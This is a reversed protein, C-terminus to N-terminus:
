LARDLHVPVGTPVATRGAADYTASTAPTGSLADIARRVHGLAQSALERNAATTDEIAEALSLFAKRHDAFVDNWPSPANTALEALSLSDRGVALSMAVEAVVGERLQEVQRLRDVTREVEELADPVFRQQDTALLLKACTLRYLLQEVVHREEWLTEALRQLHTPHAHSLEM